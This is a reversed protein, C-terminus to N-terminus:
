ARGAESGAIVMISIVAYPKVPHNISLWKLPQGRDAWKFRNSETAISKVM